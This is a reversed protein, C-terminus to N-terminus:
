ESYSCARYVYTDLMNPVLEIARDFDLNAPGFENNQLFACGRLVYAPAYELDEEIARTAAKIDEQSKGSELFSTADKCAQRVSEKPSQLEQVCTHTINLFFALEIIIWIM